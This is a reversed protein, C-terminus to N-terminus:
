VYSKFVKPTFKWNYAEAIHAVKMLTTIGGMNSIDADPFSVGADVILPALNDGILTAISSGGVEGVGYIYEMPM